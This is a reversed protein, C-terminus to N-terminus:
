RTAASFGLVRRPRGSTLTPRNGPAPPVWRTGRMTGGCSAMCSKSRPSVTSRVLARTSFSISAMTADPSRILAALSQILPPPLAMAGQSSLFKLSGPPGTNELVPMIINGAPLAM